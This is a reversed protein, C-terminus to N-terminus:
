THVLELFSLYLSTFLFSFMCYILFLLVNDTDEGQDDIQYSIQSNVPTTRNQKVTLIIFIIVSFFAVAHLSCCFPPAVKTM